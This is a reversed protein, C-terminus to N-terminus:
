AAEQPRSARRTGHGRHRPTMAARPTEVCDVTRAHMYRAHSEFGGGLVESTSVFRLSAEGTIIPGHRIEAKSLLTIDKAIAAQEFRQRIVDACRDSSNGVRPM